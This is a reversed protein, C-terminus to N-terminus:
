RPGRSHVPQTGTKPVTLRHHGFRGSDIQTSTEKHHRSGGFDSDAERSWENTSTGCRDHSIVSAASGPREGGIHALRSLLSASRSQWDCGTTELISVVRM